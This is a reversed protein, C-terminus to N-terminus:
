QVAQFEAMPRMFRGPDWHKCRLEPPGKRDGPAAEPREKARMYDWITLLCEPSTNKASSSVSGPEHKYLMDSPKEKELSSDQSQERLPKPAEQSM